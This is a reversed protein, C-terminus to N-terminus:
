NRVAYGQGHLFDCGTSADQDENMGIMTYNVDLVNYTEGSNYQNWYPKAISSFNQANPDQHVFFSIFYDKM